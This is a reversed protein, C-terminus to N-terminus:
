RLEAQAARAKECVLIVDDLTTKRHDNFRAVGVKPAKRDPKLRDPFQERIVPLVTDGAVVFCDLSSSLSGRERAIVRDIAGLLCVSRGDEGYMGGKHWGNRLEAIVADFDVFASM